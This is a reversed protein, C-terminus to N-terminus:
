LADVFSATTKALERLVESEARGSRKLVAFGHDAGDVIHLKANPIKKLIPRLLKLDALADRTGQLFLMPMPVQPLHEARKIAPKEPLHLPYGLFVLGRVNPLLGQAAVMSTIRGGMSKGGAIIPLKLRRARQVAAIITQELVSAADIRRRGESMYPFEFRLTAIREEALANAIAQMFAHRMGAGAGHALVFVARAGKPRLVIPDVV